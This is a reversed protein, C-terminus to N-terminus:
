KELILSPNAFSRRKKCDNNTARRTQNLRQSPTTQRPYFPYGIALNYQIRSGGLDRPFKKVVFDRLDPAYIQQGVDLRVVLFQLDMRLGAGASYGLQLTRHSFITEEDPRSDGHNFPSFWVNGGDLFIAAELPKFVDMRYEVNFEFKYEGGPPFVRNYNQGFLGPGLTGSQWGRVGNVGGAFFRSELPVTGTKNFGRAWGVFTRGVIEARRGLPFFAKFEAATKVFQGYRYRIPFVFGDSEDNDGRGLRNALHDILYPINGGIEAGMRWFFTPRRRLRGYEDNWIRYYSAFSNFRSQIDRWLLFATNLQQPSLLLRADAGEVAPVHNLSLAFEDFAIPTAVISLNLPTLTHLVRDKDPYKSWQLRFDLATTTRVFERPNERNQSFSLV